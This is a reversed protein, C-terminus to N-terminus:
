REWCGLKHFLLPGKMVSIRVGGIDVDAVDIRHDGFTLSERVAVMCRVERGDARKKRSKEM